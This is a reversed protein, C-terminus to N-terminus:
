KLNILLNAPQSLLQCFRNSFKAMTAGDIIRHDASWSIDAIDRAEVNGDDAFRPLRQVRGLAMIASEPYNIIPTAVTGGIAGVNSLTFTGGSLQSRSLRGARAASMLEDMQHAISVISSTEVHKVVPVLLGQPTDIAFGIHHHHYFEIEGASEDLHSNLIPFEGLAISVAKIMFPMLTLRPIEAGASQENLLRKIKVLETVDLQECMTFHPITQVSRQMQKAMAAQVGRLPERHSSEGQGLNMTRALEGPVAQVSGAQSFSYLDEKYVRGKDGSGHVQRIDVGMERALRRVAPSAIAREHHESHNPHHELNNDPGGDDFNKGVPENAAPATEVAVTQSDAASELVVEQATDSSAIENSVMEISFLPAGVRALEGVKYYLKTITGPHVAPIQVLAKDTMVDAIPQDEVVSDGEKVLWEVLECEVIGEGLDPLVFDKLM